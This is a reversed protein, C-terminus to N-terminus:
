LKINRLKQLTSCVHLLVKLHNFILLAIILTKCWFSLETCIKACQFLQNSLFISKWFLCLNWLLDTSNIKNVIKKLMRYNGWTKVKRSLGFDVQKTSSHPWSNIIKLGQCISSNPIKLMFSNCVDCNAFYLFQNHM